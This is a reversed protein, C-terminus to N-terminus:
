VCSVNSDSKGTVTLSKNIKAALFHGEGQGTVAPAWSVVVIELSQPKSM